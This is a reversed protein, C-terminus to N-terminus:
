QHATAISSRKRNKYIQQVDKTLCNNFIWIVAAATLFSIASSVSRMVPFVLAIEFTGMWKLIYEGCPLHQHKNRIRIKFTHKTPKNWAKVFILNPM